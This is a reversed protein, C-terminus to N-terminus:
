FLVVLIVIASLTLFMTLQTVPSVKISFLNYSITFEEKLSKLWLQRKSPPWKTKPANCVLRRRLVAEVEERSGTHIGITWEKMGEVLTVKLGNKQWQMRIVSLRLTYNHATDPTPPQDFALSFEIKPHNLEIVDSVHTLVEADTM